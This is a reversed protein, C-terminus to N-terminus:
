CRRVLQADTEVLLAGGEAPLVLAPEVQKVAEHDYFVAKIGMDHLPAARDHLAQAEKATVALLM